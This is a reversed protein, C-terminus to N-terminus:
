DRDTLRETIYAYDTPLFKDLQPSGSLRAAAVLDGVTVETPGYGGKRHVAAFVEALQITRDYAPTYHRKAPLKNFSVFSRKVYGRTREPDDREADVVFAEASPYTGLDSLVVCAVIHLSDQMDHGMGEALMVAEMQLTLAGTTWPLRTTSLATHM